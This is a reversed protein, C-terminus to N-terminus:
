CYVTALLSDYFANVTSIASNDNFTNSYNGFSYSIGMQSERKEDMRLWSADIYKAMGNYVLPSTAFDRFKSFNLGAAFSIYAPRAKRIEKKSLNTEENQSFVVGHILLLLFFLKFIKNM